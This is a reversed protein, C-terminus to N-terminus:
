ATSTTTTTATPEQDRSTAEVPEQYQPASGGERGQRRDSVVIGAVAQAVSEAIIQGQPVGRLAALAALKAHIPVTLMVTSKVLRPAPTADRRRKTAM